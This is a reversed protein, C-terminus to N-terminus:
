RLGTIRLLIVIHLLVSWAVDIAIPQM